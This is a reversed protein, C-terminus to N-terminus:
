GTAQSALRARITRRILIRFTLYQILFAILQAATPVISTYWAWLDFSFALAMAANAVALVIQLAGWGHSSWLIVRPDLNDKVIPPLYPAMWNTRLMLIGVAASIISSKLQVFHPDNTALTTVGSVIVLVISLYQLPGIPQKRVKLYAFRAVGVAVGLVTALIISGTQWYVVVFFITALLDLAIPKFAQLFYM